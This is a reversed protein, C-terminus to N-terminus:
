KWWGKLYGNIQVKNSLDIIEVANWDVLLLNTEEGLHYLADLIIDYETVSTILHFKLWITAVYEEEIEFFLTFSEFGYAKTKSKKLSRIEGAEYRMHHLEPLKFSSLAVKLYDARFECSITKVPHDERQVIDTYGYDTRHEQDFLELEKMQQQLFPLNEKPVLEVQCYDDEWLMPIYSRTILKGSKFYNLFRQFLLSM